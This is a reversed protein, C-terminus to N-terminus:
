ASVTAIMAGSFHQQVSEQLQRMFYALAVLLHKPYKFVGFNFLSHANKFKKRYKQIKEFLKQKIKQLREQIQVKSINLLFTYMPNFSTM